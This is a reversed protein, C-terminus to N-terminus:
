NDLVIMQPQGDEPAKVNSKILLQLHASADNRDESASIVYKRLEFEKFLYNLISTVEM